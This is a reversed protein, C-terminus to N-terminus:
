KCSCFQPSYRLKPGHYELDVACHTHSCGPNLKLASCKLKVPMILTAAKTTAINTSSCCTQQCVSSSQSSLSFALPLIKLPMGLIAPLLITIQCGCM